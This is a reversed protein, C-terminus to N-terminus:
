YNEIMESTLYNNKIGTYTISSYKEDTAVRAGLYNTGSVKVTKVMRGYIKKIEGYKLASQSFNMNGIDAPFGAIM